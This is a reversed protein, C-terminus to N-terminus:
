SATLEKKMNEYIEYLNNSTAGEMDKISKKKWEKENFDVNQNKMFPNFKELFYETQKTELINKKNEETKDELYDNVCKVIYYGKETEIIGTSEDIELKFVEQEVTEIMDGRGLETQYIKDESYEKAITYFDTGKKVKEYAQAIKERDNEVYIYMIDMVRAEEDSVEYDANKAITDYVKDAMYCKTFLSVVDSEKVSSIKKEEEDLATYYKNAADNIAQKEEENLVIDNDEAFLYLAELYTQKEKVEDKVNQEFSVGDVVKDWISSGFDNEYQNKEYILTLMIEAMSCESKGMKFAVDSKMGTTIQVTKKCGCFSTVVMTVCAIGVAIKKVINRRM